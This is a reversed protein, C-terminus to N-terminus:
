DEDKMTARHDKLRQLKEPNAGSAELAAIQADIQEKTAPTVTVHFSM